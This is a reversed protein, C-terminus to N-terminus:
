KDERLIHKIFRLMKREKKSLTSEDLEFYECKVTQGGDDCDWSHRYTCNKCTYDM